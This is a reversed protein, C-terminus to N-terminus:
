RAFGVRRPRANGDAMSDLVRDLGGVDLQRSILMRQDREVPAPDAPQQFLQRIPVANAPKQSQLIILRHETAVLLDRQTNMHGVGSNAANPSLQSISTIRENCLNIDTILTLGPAYLSGFSNKSGMGTSRQWFQQLSTISYIDDNYWLVVSEDTQGARVSSTSVSIGAQPAGATSTSKPAGGFFNEAKIKRTNPTMPALKSANKVQKGNLSSEASPATGLYGRVIFDNPSKGTSVSGDVAWIGWEGDDLIALVARGSRIWHAALVQKRRPLSDHHSAHSTTFSIIWRGPKESETQDEDNQGVSENPAVPDYIRVAGSNESLLLQTSSASPLFIVCKAGQPLNTTHLEADQQLNTLNEFVSFRYMNLTNSGTSVLLFSTTPSEFDDYTSDALVIKASLATCAEGNSPFQIQRNTVDEVYAAKGDEHPPLLDFNLVSQSGDDCAVAVAGHKRLADNPKILATPLLPVALLSVESGLDIDVHQIISPCLCDPDDDEEEDFDGQEPEPQLEEDDSLMIADQVTRSGSALRSASKAGHRRRRGGRWILRIGHHYACVILTSDNPTAIPYLQASHIRHDLEYSLHLKKDGRSIRPEM